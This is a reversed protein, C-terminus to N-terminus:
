QEIEDKSPKVIALAFYFSRRSLTIKSILDLALLCSTKAVYTSGTKSGLEDKKEESMKSCVFYTCITTIISINHDSTNESVFKM